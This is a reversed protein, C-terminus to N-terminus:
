FCCILFFDACFYLDHHNANKFSNKCQMPAGSRGTEITGLRDFIGGRDGGGSHKSSPNHGRGRSQSGKEEAANVEEAEDDYDVDETHDAMYSDFYYVAKRILLQAKIYIYIGSTYICM